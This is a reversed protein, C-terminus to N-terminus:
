IRNIAPIDAPLDIILTLQTDAQPHWPWGAWFLKNSWFIQTLAFIHHSVSLRCCRWDEGRCLRPAPKNSLPRKPRPLTYLYSPRIMAGSRTTAATPPHFSVGGYWATGTHISVGALVAPEAQSQGGAGAALGRSGVGPRLLVIGCCLHMRCTGRCIQGVFVASHRLFCHRNLWQLHSHERVPPRCPHVGHGETMRVISPHFVAVVLALEPIHGDATHTLTHM